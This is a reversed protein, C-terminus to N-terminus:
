IIVLKNENVFEDRYARFQMSDRSYGLEELGKEFDKLSIGHQFIVEHYGQLWLNIIEKKDM